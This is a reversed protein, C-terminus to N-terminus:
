SQPVEIWAAEPGFAHQDRKTAKRARVYAGGCTLWIHGSPAFAWFEGAHATGGDAAWFVIERAPVRRATQSTRTLHYAAQRQLEGATQIM